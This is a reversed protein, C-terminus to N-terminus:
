RQPSGSSSFWPWVGSWHLEWQILPFGAAFDGEGGALLLCPLNTLLRVIVLQGSASSLPCQRGAQFRVCSGEFLSWRVRTPLRQWGAKRGPGHETGCGMAPAPSPCSRQSLLPFIEALASRVTEGFPSSRPRLGAGLVDVVKLSSVKLFHKATSFVEENRGCLGAEYTNVGQCKFIHICKIGDKWHKISFKNLKKNGKSYFQKIFALPKVSM